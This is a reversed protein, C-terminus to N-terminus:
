PRLQQFRSFQRRLSRRSVWLLRGVNNMSPRVSLVTSLFDGYARFSRYTMPLASIRMLYFLTISFRLFTSLYFLNSFGWGSELLYGGIKAGCTAGLNMLAFHLGLPKL